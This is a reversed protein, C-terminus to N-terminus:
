SDDGKYKRYKRGFTFLTVIGAIQVKDRNTYPTKIKNMKQVKTLLIKIEQAM